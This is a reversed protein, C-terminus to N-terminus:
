FKHLVGGFGSGGSSKLYRNFSEAEAARARADELECQGGNVLNALSADLTCMGQVASTQIVSPIQHTKGERILNSIADNVRMIEFAAIAGNGYSRPLLQQTVVRQLVTALQVRM